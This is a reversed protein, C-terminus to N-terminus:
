RAVLLGPIAIYGSVQQPPAFALGPSRLGAGHRRRALADRARVRGKQTIIARSACLVRVSCGTRESARWLKRTREVRM